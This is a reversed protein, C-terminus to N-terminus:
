AHSIPTLLDANGAKVTECPIKKLLGNIAERNYLAKLYHKDYYKLLIAFCERIAGESLFQLAAKTDQPGLRKTIRSIAEGLRETNLKGYEEVIHDLRANFPIELFYVPSERITKWLAGPLNIRGIRQSEDELWIPSHHITFPSDANGDNKENERALQGSAKLLEGSLMNEFMEQSPQEPMDINGFASGKHVAIGELDIVVEGAKKIEHLLETKGSGTFGGLINFTYPYEFSQIVLNRFAKYGGDLVTVKFGYLDLLWAIAGSRMGGRWCYLFVTEPEQNRTEPESHKKGSFINEVQEVIKRMKPAFFDLGTKIAKERSEQKYATGVVSREEDDFLPINIAGPVHAHKWESPSRVDIVLQGASDSFFEKAPVRIFSV